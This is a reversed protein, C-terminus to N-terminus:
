RDTDLALKRLLDLNMKDDELGDRKPTEILKPTQSLRADRMIYRFAGQGIQGQGIHTHRDVRSGLPKLSDNLHIVKLRDFGIISGFDRMTAQYASETRIDYGAAFIHCTDLCVSVHSKNEVGDIIEALHEFKFGIHAGQGATLELAIRARADKTMEICHNLSDIIRRIGTDLPETVPSGPHLVVDTVGLQEARFIEDVMASLSKVHAEPNPTALNILYATHSIIPAIRSDAQASRFKEAEAETTPRQVWRNANKTFIQISTCGLELGNSIANHLGGSTSVHAGLLPTSLETRKDPNSKPRSM